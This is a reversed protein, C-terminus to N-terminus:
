RQVRVARLLRSMAETLETTRETLPGVFAQRVVLDRDLLLTLPQKGTELVDRIREDTSQTLPADPVRDRATQFWFEHLLKADITESIFVVQVSPDAKWGRAISKLLPMEAVCPKCEVAWIHVLFLRRDEIKFSGWKNKSSDFARVGRLDLRRHLLSTEIDRAPEAATSRVATLLWLILVIRSAIQVSYGCVQLWIM